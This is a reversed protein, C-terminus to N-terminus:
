YRKDTFKQFILIFQFLILSANKYGTQYCDTRKTSGEQSTNQGSPCTVCSRASEQDNYTNKPCVECGHITGFYGLGCGLFFLFYFLYQKIIKNTTHQLKKMLYKLNKLHNRM